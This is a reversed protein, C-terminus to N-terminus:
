PCSGTIPVDFSAQSIDFVGGASLGICGGVAAQYDGKLILDGGAAAEVVGGVDGSADFDSSSGDGLEANGAATLRIEGGVLPGDATIEDIVLNAASTLRVTGGIERGEAEIERLTVDGFTSEVVVLGGQPGSRARLRGTANVTGALVAITGAPLALPSSGNATLHRMTATGGAKVTIFGLGGNARIIGRRGGIVVDGAADVTAQGGSAHQGQVRIEESISVDGGSSAVTVTGGPTGRGELRGLLSVGAQGSLAVQGAATHNRRGRVDVKARRISALMGDAEVSVSGGTATANGGRVRARLQHELQVDGGADLVIAGTSQRGSVDLRRKVLIDGSAILTLDAGDGEVGTTHRGDIKAGVNIEAATLSLAGNNPVFVKKAITLTRAGFDLVCSAVTVEITDTTVCPNGTCFDDPTDCDVQTVAGATAASLLLALFSGSAACRLRHSSRIGGPPRACCGRVATTM